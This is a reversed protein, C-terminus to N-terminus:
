AARCKEVGHVAHPCLVAAVGDLASGGHATEELAADKVVHGLDDAVVDGDREKAGVTGNAVVANGLQPPRALDIVVCARAGKIAGVGAEKVAKGPQSDSCGDRHILNQDINWGLTTNTVYLRTSLCKHLPCISCESTTM